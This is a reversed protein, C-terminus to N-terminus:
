RVSSIGKSPEGDSQRSPLGATARILDYSRLAYSRITTTTAAAALVCSTAAFMFAWRWRGPEFGMLLWAFCLLVVAATWLLCAAVTTASVIPDRM